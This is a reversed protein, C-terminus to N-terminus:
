QNNPINQSNLCIIVRLSCKRYEKQDTAIKQVAESAQAGHDYCFFTVLQRLTIKSSWNRMSTAMKRQKSTHETCGGCINWTWVFIDVTRSDILLSDKRKKRNNNQHLIKFTWSEDKLFFSSLTPSEGELFFKNWKSWHYGKLFASFHKKNWRLLM